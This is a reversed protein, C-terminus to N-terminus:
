LASRAEATRPDNEGHHNRLRALAEEIERQARKRDGQYRAVRSSALLMEDLRPHDSDIKRTLAIAQDLEARADALHEATPQGLLDLGLQFRTAAVALNNPGVTKLQIALARRHLVKADDPRSQRRRLEGLDNLPARLGDADKGLMEELGSIAARLTPEAAELKGRRLEVAGLNGLATLTSVHKEGFRERAVALAEEFRQQAEPFREQNMLSVGLLRLASSTDAHHLPRYIRLAEAFSADAETYKRENVYLLGLDILTAALEPHDAGLSKREAAITLAFEKEAEGRRGRYTLLEALSGHARATRPDNAALSRDFIAIAERYSREADDFRSASEQIMGLLNLDGALQPRAAGSRRRTAVLGNALKLAEDTQGDNALADALAERARITEANDAGRATVLKPVVAHLERMAAKEDGLASLAEALTVRSSLTWPDDDGFLHRRSALAREAM